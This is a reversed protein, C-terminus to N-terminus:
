KIWNLVVLASVAFGGCFIYTNPDSYAPIIKSFEFFIAERAKECSEFKVQQRRQM